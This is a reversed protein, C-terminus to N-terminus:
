YKDFTAVHDKAPLWFKFEVSWIKRSRIRRLKTQIKARVGMNPKMGYCLDNQWYDRSALVNLFRLEDGYDLDEDRLLASAENKGDSVFSVSAARCEFIAKLMESFDKFGIETEPYRWCGSAFVIGFGDDIVLELSPGDSPNKVIIWTADYVPDFGFMYGCYGDGCVHVEVAFGYRCVLDVIESVKSKASIRRGSYTIADSRRREIFKKKAM